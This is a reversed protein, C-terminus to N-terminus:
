ADKIALYDALMVEYGNQRLADLLKDTFTNLDLRKPYVKFKKSYFREKAIKHIMQYAVWVCLENWENGIAKQEALDWAKALNNSMFGSEGINTADSIDIENQWLSLSDDFLKKITQM